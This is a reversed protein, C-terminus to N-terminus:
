SLLDRLKKFVKHEDSFKTEEIRQVPVLGSVNSTFVFDAELLIEEDALVEEYPVSLKKCAELTNRRMIGEICGSHLDPTFIKEDKIWFLNSATCEAVHGYTDLLVLDDAQVKEREMGALVYPLASCTKFNSLPHHSLRVTKSFFINKKLSLPERPTRDEYLLLDFLRSKPAYLGGEHRIILLKLVVDRYPDSGALM